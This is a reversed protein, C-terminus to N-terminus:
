LEKWWTYLRVFWLSNLTELESLLRANLKRASNRDARVTVLSSGLGRLEGELEAVVADRVYPLHVRATVQYKGYRVEKKSCKVYKALEDLLRHTAERAKDKLLYSRGAFDLCPNIEAEVTYFEEKVSLVVQRITATAAGDKGGMAVDFRTLERHEPPISDYKNM